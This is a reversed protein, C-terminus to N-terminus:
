INNYVIADVSSSTSSESQIYNLAGDFVYGAMYFEVDKIDTEVNGDGNLDVMQDWAGTLKFDYGAYSTTESSAVIKIISGRNTEAVTGDAKLPADGIVFSKVAVVFGFELKIQNISEFLTLANEDIYYGFTIGDGNEKTSFGKFGNIIPNVKVEEKADCRACKTAKDGNYFYDEYNISLIKAGNEVDFEHGLATNEEDIKESIAGCFCYKIVASNNLCDAEVYGSEKRSDTIHPQTSSTNETKTYDTESVIHVQGNTAKYTSLDYVVNSACFYAYSNAQYANNAAGITLGVDTVSKDNPHAFMFSINRYSNNNQRIILSSVDGLFVVTVPNSRNECYFAGQKCDAASTIGTPFVIVSNLNNCGQFESNGLVTMNKPMYYVDPKQPMVFDNGSLVNFPENVFYVNPSDYFVGWDAATNGSSKGLSVLNAPLYVAQLNSCGRLAKYFISTINDPLSIAKLQTCNMFANSQIETITSPLEIGTLAKCGNFMSQAIIKTGEALEVEELATCGSFTSGNGFKTIVGEIKVSKLSTCNKFASGGISTITAPITVEELGCGEFTNDAIATANGFDIYKLGTWGSFFAKSYSITPFGSLFWKVEVCNIFPSSPKTMRTPASSSCGHTKAVSFDIGTATSMDVENIFDPDSYFKYTEFNIQPNSSKEANETYVTIYKESGPFRAGFEIYMDPAEASVFIALACALMAVICLTLLIRKKM